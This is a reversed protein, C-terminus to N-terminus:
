AAMEMMGQASQLGSKVWSCSLASNSHGFDEVQYVEGGRPEFEYPNFGFMIKLHDPYELAHNVKPEGIFYRSSRGGHIRVMRKGLRGEAELLLTYSNITTRHVVVGAKVRIGAQLMELSDYGAGVLEVILDLMKRKAEARERNHAANGQRIKTMDRM